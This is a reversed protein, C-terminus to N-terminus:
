NKHATSLKHETSFSFLKIVEPRFEPMSAYEQFRRGRYTSAIQRNNVHITCGKHNLKDTCNRLGKHVAFVYVPVKVFLSSGLHFVAPHLM